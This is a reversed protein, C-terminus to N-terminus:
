EDNPRYSGRRGYIVINASSPSGPQAFTLVATHGDSSVQLRGTVDIRASTTAVRGRSQTEPISTTMTAKVTVTSSQQAGAAAAFAGSLTVARTAVGPAGVAGPRAGGPLPGGAFRVFFAGQTAQGCGAYSTVALTGRPMVLAASPTSGGARVDIVQRAGFRSTGPRILTLPQGVIYTGVAACAMAGAGHATQASAQQRAGVVGAAAVSAFLIASRSMILSRKM